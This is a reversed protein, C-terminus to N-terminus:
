KIYDFANIIHNIDKCDQGLIEIVDFRCKTNLLNNAKIYQMGVQSYKKQKRYNVAEKPLGYRVDARTKVEVFVTVDNDKVILDIEGIQTTFNNQIIKYGKKKLYKEAIKEGNRGFNVNNM